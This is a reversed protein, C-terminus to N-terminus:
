IVTFYKHYVYSKCIRDQAANYQVFHHTVHLEHAAPQLGMTYLLRVYVMIIWKYGTKDAM